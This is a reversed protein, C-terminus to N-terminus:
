RGKAEPMPANLFENTMSTVWDTKYMVTVHTTGPLIALQSAPLGVLDGAVGGGLLRFMEVVHEPQVIDSDGVIILMPTKFSRIQEPTWPQYNRDMDTKKAVFKPWDGPNPAVKDYAEKWPTGDLADPPMDDLGEMMGPHLGKLDYAIGGAVVMKRVMEPHDYALKMAVDSGMSYAFIDAQEIGLHRLLAATDDAMHQTRLPRDIDATHGHAQQEVAIVRRTRAFIPLMQAFDPEISSFAGHLLMLPLNDDQREGHIEYYMRLGNVPAYGSEVPTSTNSNMTSDGKTPLMAAQRGSTSQQCILRDYCLWLDPEQVFGVPERGLRM